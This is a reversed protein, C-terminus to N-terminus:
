AQAAQRSRLGMRISTAPVGAKKAAPAQPKGSRLAVAVTEQPKQPQFFATVKTRREAKSAPPGAAPRRRPPERQQVAAPKPAAAAAAAAAGRKPARRPAPAPPAAPAATAPLKPAPARPPRARCKPAPPAAAQVARAVCSALAIVRALHLALLAAGSGGGGGGRRASGGGGGGRRAGGRARAQPAPAAADSEEELELLGDAAAPVSTESGDEESGSGGGQGGDSGPAEGDGDGGPTPPAPAFPVDLWAAWAHARKRATIAEPAEGTSQHVLYDHVNDFGAARALQVIDEGHRNKLCLKCFSITLKRGGGCDERCCTIHDELTKQRCWHCTVGYKSDYVRGGQIRVGLGSDVPGRAGEGDVERVRRERLEHLRAPDVGIRQRRRPAGIMDLRDIGIREFMRDEALSQPEQGALRACRRVTVEIEYQKRKRAPGRPKPAPEMATRLEQAASALGLAEM